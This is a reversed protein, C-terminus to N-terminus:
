PFHDEYEWLTSELKYDRDCNILRLKKKINPCKKLLFQINENTFLLLLIVYLSGDPSLVLRSYLFIFTFNFCSDKLSLFSFQGLRLDQISRGM